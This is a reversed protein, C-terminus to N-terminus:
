YNISFNKKKKPAGGKRKNLVLDRSHCVDIHLQCLKRYVELDEVDMYSKAAMTGGDKGGPGESSQAQLQLLDRRVGSVRCRVGTTM